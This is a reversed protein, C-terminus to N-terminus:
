EDTLCPEAVWLFASQVEVGSRVAEVVQPPDGARFRHPQIRLEGRVVLVAVRRAARHGRDGEGVTDHSAQPQAVLDWSWTPFIRVESRADDTRSAIQVSM